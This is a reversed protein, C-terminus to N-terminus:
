ILKTFASISIDTGLWKGIERTFSLTAFITMIPLIFSFILILYLTDQVTDIIFCIIYFVATTFIPNLFVVSLVYYSLVVGPGTLTNGIEQTAKVFYDIAGRGSFQADFILSNLYFMLPYITSLALSLAILTNGGARTQPFSRLFLGIPFFFPIFWKQIFCFMFTFIVWEGYATILFQIAYAVIDLLPRLTPGLQINLARKIEGLPLSITYVMNLLINATIMRSSVVSIKNLMKFSYDTSQQFLNVGFISPSLIFSIFLAGIITTILLENREQKALHIVNQSQILNGFMYLLAVCMAMIFIALLSNRILEVSFTTTLSSPACAALLVDKENTRLEEVTKTGQEELTTGKIFDQLKDAMDGPWAANLNATFLSILFFCMIKKNM